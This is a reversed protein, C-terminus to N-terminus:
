HWTTRKCRTKSWSPLKIHTM